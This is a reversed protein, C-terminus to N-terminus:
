YSDSGKNLCDTLEEFFSAISGPTSLQYITFCLCKKKAVTLTHPNWM